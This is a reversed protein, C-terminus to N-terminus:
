GVFSLPIPVNSGAIQVTFNLAINIPTVQINELIVSGYRSDQMISNQVARAFIIGNNLNGAWKDGINSTIGFQKHWPLEGATTKLTYLVAQNVAPMGYVVDLDGNGSIIIDGTAENRRVDSGFALLAADLERMGHIVPDRQRPYPSAITLPILILSKDHITHPKYIRVYSLEGMTYKSLDNDGSLELTLTNDGNDIVRHIFRIQEAYRASGIAVKGGTHVYHIYTAAIRVANGAGPAVLYEVTGTLDIYPAQLKNVTALEFWRSKDGLYREAMAELSGEFPVAVSSRYDSRILVNSSASINQNAVRLLDPDTDTNQKLDFIIGDIIDAADLVAELVYLDTINHSRYSPVVSVGLASAGDSDGLDIRQAALAEDSRLYKAMSEFHAVTLASVRSIAKRVIVSDSPSMPVMTLPIYYMLDKYAVTRTADDFPNYVAGMQTLKVDKDLYFLTKVLDDDGTIKSAILPHLNRDWGDVIWPWKVQCLRPFLELTLQAGKRIALYLQLDTFVQDTSSYSPM